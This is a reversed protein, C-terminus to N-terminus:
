HPGISADIEGPAENCSHHRGAVRGKGSDYTSEAGTFMVFVDEDASSEGRTM